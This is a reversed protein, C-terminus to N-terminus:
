GCGTRAVVLKAAYDSADVLEAVCGRRLITRITSSHEDM